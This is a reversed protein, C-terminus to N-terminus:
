RPDTIWCDKLNREADRWWAVIPGDYAGYAVRAVSGARGDTTGTVQVFVGDAVAVVHREDPPTFAPVPVKELDNLAFILSPCTKGSAWDHKVESTAVCGKGADRNGCVNDLRRNREAIWFLKSSPRRKAWFIVTQDVNLGLGGGKETVRYVEEFEEGGIRKFSSTSALSERADQQALLSQPCAALALLSAARLSFGVVSLMTM